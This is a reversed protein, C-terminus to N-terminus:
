PPLITQPNVSKGNRRFEVHVHYGTANGSRGVQAITQGQEVWQGVEVLNRDNHGYWSELGDDHAIVVLNGFGSQRGVFAIQGARAAVIPTGKAARLDVGQHAPRPQRYGSSIDVHGLPWIYDPVRQPLSLRQGVRLQNPDRLANRWQLYVLPVGSRLAISSLTDGPRVQYSQLATPEPSDTTKCAVCGLLLAIVVLRRM